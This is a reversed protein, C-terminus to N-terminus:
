YLRGGRRKWTRFIDAAQAALGPLPLSRVSRRGAAKRLEGYIRSDSFGFSAATRRSLCYHVTRIGAWYIASLCM